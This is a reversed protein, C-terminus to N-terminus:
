AKRYGYVTITGAWTGAGPYITLGEYQTTNNVLVSYSGFYADNVSSGFFTSTGITKAAAQPNCLDLSFQSANDGILGVRWSTQVGWSSSPAAGTNSIISGYYYISTTVPSTGDVLRFNVFDNGTTSGIAYYVIRYNDYTSTFCNDIQQAASTSTWTKSTVYVLGSNALYTNTDSATLQENTFTKVAM